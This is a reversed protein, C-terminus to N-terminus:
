AIEDQRLWDKHTSIFRKLALHVLDELEEGSVEQMQKLQSVLKTEIKWSVQEVDGTPKGQGRM